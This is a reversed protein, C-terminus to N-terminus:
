EPEKDLLALVAVKVDEFARLVWAQDTSPATRYAYAVSDFEESDLYARMQERLGKRVLGLVIDTM